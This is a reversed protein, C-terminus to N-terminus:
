ADASHRGYDLVVADRGDTEALFVRVDDLRETILRRGVLDACIPLEKWGRDIVVALVIRAPRGLELIEDLAARITRGTFLVDDVLIVTQGNLPFPIETQGVVPREGLSDFDDRYITIDLSGCPIEHGLQDALRTQLRRALVDGRRKIGILCLEPNNGFDKVISGALADLLMSLGATDVVEEM